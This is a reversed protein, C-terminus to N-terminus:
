PNIMNIGRNRIKSTGCKSKLWAFGFLFFISVTLRFFVITIPRFSVNAFKFAVFAFGWFVMALIVSFYVGSKSKGM